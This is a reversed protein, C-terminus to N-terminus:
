YKVQFRIVGMGNRNLNAIELLGKLCETKFENFSGVSNNLFLGTCVQKALLFQILFSRYIIKEKEHMLQNIYAHTCSSGVMQQINYRVGLQVCFSSRFWFMAKPLYQEANAWIFEM